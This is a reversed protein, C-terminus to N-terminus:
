HSLYGQWSDSEAVDKIVASRRLLFERMYRELFLRDALKGLWGLPSTYAFRDVIWTGGNEPEFIHDHDFRVFPGTVQSDRFSRPRDFATIRATLQRRKGLHYASWTVQDGLEFLGSERGATVNEDSGATSDVHLEVSRALDFVRDVPADVWVRTEIKPM